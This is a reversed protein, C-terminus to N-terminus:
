TIGFRLGVFEANAKGGRRAIPGFPRDSKQVPNLAMALLGYLESMIKSRMWRGM